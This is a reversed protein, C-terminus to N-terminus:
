NLSEIKNWSKFRLPEIFKNELYLANIIKDNASKDIYNKIINVLADIILATLPDGDKTPHMLRDAKQHFNNNCFEQAEDILRQYSKSFESPNKLIRSRGSSTSIDTKLQDFVADFKFQSQKYAIKLKNVEKVDLDTALKLAQIKTETEQQYVKYEKIFKTSELMRIFEDMKPNATTSTQASAVTAVMLTIIFLFVKKMKKMKITSIVKYM